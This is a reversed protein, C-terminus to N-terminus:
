GESQGVMKESSKREEEQRISLNGDSEKMCLARRKADFAWAM